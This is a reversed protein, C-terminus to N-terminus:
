MFLLSAIWIPDFIDSFHEKDFVVFLPEIFGRNGMAPLIALSTDSGANTYEGLRPAGWSYPPRARDGLPLPSVTRARSETAFRSPIPARARSRAASPTSSKAVSPVASASRPSPM